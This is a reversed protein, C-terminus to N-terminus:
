PKELILGVLDPNLQESTECLECIHKIRFGAQIICNIYTSLPRHFYLVEAAYDSRGKTSFPISYYGENMYLFSDCHLHKKSWFVPHPIVVVLHGGSKLAKHVVSFFDALNPMNNLVMVALATDYSTEFANKYLDRYEFFINPYKKQAYAISYSSIDIGIISVGFTEHVANTLYGCGCGIDLIMHGKKTFSSLQSLVWPMIIQTYNLDTGHELDEARTKLNLDWLKAIHQNFSGNM